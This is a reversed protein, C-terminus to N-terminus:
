SLLSPVGAVPAGGSYVCAVTVSIAFTIVPQVYAGAGPYAPCHGFGGYQNWGITGNSDCWSWVCFTILRGIGQMMPAPPVACDSRSWASSQRTFCCLTAGNM